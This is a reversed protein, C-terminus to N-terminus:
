VRHEYGIKKYGSLRREYMKNLRRVSCDVYDYIQVETKGEHRRHLRGAYQELTGSWSIPSALFLTDLRSDDFGEGIYRGTALVIREESKPVADLREKLQTRQKKGLGGRFILINKAFGNLMDALKDLHETRDTVVLPTRKHELAKLIDDFILNNREQDAALLSFLEQISLDDGGDPSFSTTRPIVVHQQIGSSSNQKSGIKVRVPGCQMIVIPHHGDKRIPTATLGLVYKAKVQKLVAEFTFAPIHHCEDVIVQGYEAVLDKVTGNRQLSQITAVDLIGTRKQKGGGIQGISNPPVSLFEALRERWQDLLQARHVLVLTNTSRAAICHAAVVTKGFATAASLVGNDHRLLENAAAVQDPRLKGTFSVDIANGASRKDRLDITVSNAAMLEALTDLCGRPLAIYKGDDSGCSIIRPKGFTSMRMAQYQYFEPNQFAAINMIRCLASSPFGNKSVYVQNAVTVEAMKPLPMGLPGDKNRGSPPLTWPDETADSDSYSQLVPIISNEKAANKVLNDVKRSSMRNISRLFEWQDQYPRLFSDLFVANGQKASECQLPLAILNGFKGKPMTDQNPFMRDYSEFTVSYREERCKTILAAGLKRAQAAGIPRDFFIWVHGGNGSRSRELYAPVDLTACAQMFASADDLWAAKDFDVALFWCSEDPLMPYVGIVSTGNLHSRLVEDTLPLTPCTKPCIKKGTRKDVTHSDWNHKRAPSYNSKGQFEWRVAYVDERGRFLNLFLKLHEESIRGTDYSGASRIEFITKQEVLGTDSSHHQNSRAGAIGRLEEIERRLELNEKRLRENEKVLNDFLPLQLQTM